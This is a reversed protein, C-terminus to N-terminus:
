ADSRAHLLKEALGCPRFIWMGARTPYYGVNANGPGLAVTDQHSGVECNVPHAVLRHISVDAAIVILEGTEALFQLDAFASRDEVILGQARMSLDAENQLLRLIWKLASRLTPGSGGTGASGLCFSGQRTEPAM